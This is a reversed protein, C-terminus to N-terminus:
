WTKFTKSDNNQNTYDLVFLRNIGVFNPELYYRYENTTTKKKRKTKYKNWYVSREFGQSRLKLLKQKDKGSFTVLPIYLKTGKITFIFNNSNANTNDNGDAFAFLICYKTWKLQLQVKLNISSM